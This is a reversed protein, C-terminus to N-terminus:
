AMSLAAMELCTARPEIVSCASCAMPFLVTLLGRWPRQILKAELSRDQELTRVELNFPEALILCIFRLRRLYSKTM